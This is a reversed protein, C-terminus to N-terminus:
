KPTPDITAEFSASSPFPDAATDIMIAPMVMALRNPTGSPVESLWVMEHRM